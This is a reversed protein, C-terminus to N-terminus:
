YFDIREVADGYCCRMRTFKYGRCNSTCACGTLMDSRKGRM